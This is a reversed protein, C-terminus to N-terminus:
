SYNNIHRNFLYVERSEQRSAQPKFVKSYAFAQQAQRCYSDFGEGQFVKAVLIGTPKLVCLAIELVREALGIMKPIDISAMGSVHPAIDSIVLDITTM